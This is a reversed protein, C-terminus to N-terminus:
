EFPRVYSLLGAGLRRDGLDGARTQGTSTCDGVREGSVKNNQNNTGILQRGDKSLTVADVFGGNDWTLTYKREAANTVEWTGSNESSVFTHNAKISLQPGVFWKWTGVIDNCGSQSGQTLLPVILLLTLVLTRIMLNGGACLNLGPDSGM